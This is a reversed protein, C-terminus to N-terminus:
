SMDWTTNTFPLPINSSAPFLCRTTGDSDDACEPKSIESHGFATFIIPNSPSLEDCSWSMGVSLIGTNANYNVKMGRFINPYSVSPSCEFWYNPDFSTANPNLKSDFGQCSLERDTVFNRITVDFGGKPEGDRTFYWWHARFVYATDMLFYQKDPDFSIVTCKPAEPNPLELAYPEMAYRSEIKGDIDLDPGLCVSGNIIPTGAPVFGIQTADPEIEPRARCKLSPLAAAGVAYFKVPSASGEDDCYWTQNVLLRKETSILRMTTEVEYNHTLNVNEDLSHTYCTYWTPGPDLPWPAVGSPPDINTVNSTEKGSGQWMCSFTQKNARNTINVTNDDCAWNQEISLHRTPYDFGFQASYQHDDDESTCDGDIHQENGEAQGFCDLQGDITNSTLLFNVTSIGGSQSYSFSDVAWTPATLSNNLCGTSLTPPPGSDIAIDKTAANGFSISHSVVLFLYTLSATRSKSLDLM